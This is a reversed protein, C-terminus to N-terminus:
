LFRYGLFGMGRSGRTGMGSGLLYYVIKQAMDNDSVQMTVKDGLLTIGKYPVGIACKNKLEIQDYLSFDSDVKEGTHVEYQHIVSKKLMEEFQAFSMVDRWYGRGGADSLVIPTLSYVSSIQRHPITKVTRVLGKVQDTRHDAIGNLCYSLFEENLTRIRFQYINDGKYERMGKELPYPLDFTYCKPARDEHFKTFEQDKELYSDIFHAIESQMESVKISKSIYIRITMEYVTM